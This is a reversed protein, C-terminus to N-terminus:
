HANLPLLVYYPHINRPPFLVLSTKFARRGAPRVPAQANIRNRQPIPCEILLCACKLWQRKPRLWPMAPLAVLCIPVLQDMTKELLKAPSCRESCGQSPHPLMALPLVWRASHADFACRLAHFLFEKVPIQLQVMSIQWEDM